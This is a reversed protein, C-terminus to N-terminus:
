AAAQSESPPALDDLTVKGGTADRIRVAMAMSPVRRKTKINHLHSVDLGCRAAFAELTLGCAAKEAKLYDHLTM